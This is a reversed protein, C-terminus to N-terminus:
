PAAMLQWKVPKGEGMNEVTKGDHNVLSSNVAGFMRDIAAGTPKEVGLQRFIAEVIQRTTMAATADKLVGLATRFVTGRKLYPNRGNKCRAAIRRTDFGPELMRIVAEVHRMCKALRTADKRNEKIKGGLEAHLRELAFIAPKHKM